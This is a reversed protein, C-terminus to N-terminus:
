APPHGIEIDAGEQTSVLSMRLVFSQKAQDSGQNFAGWACASFIFYPKSDIGATTGGCAPSDNGTRDTM